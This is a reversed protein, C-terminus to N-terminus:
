SGVENSAALRASRRPAPWAYSGALLREIRLAGIVFRCIAEKVMAAVRGRVVRGTPQDDSNVFVVLGRRRGLSICQLMYGFRFPRLTEGTLLRAVQDAAHAGLPMAAACSMRTSRVGSGVSDDPPAAFDGAAFVNGIGYVRLESDVLIRGCADRPLTSAAPLPTAAFGSALVSLAAPVRSGDELVVADDELARVRVGERVHVGLAGLESRLVARTPDGLNEGVRLALLEVELKPFAEAIEASLEIGTLGGGVVVVRQGSALQPLAAALQQAHSSDALAASLPSSVPVNAKLQSGLALILASYPLWRRGSSDEIEVRCAHTDLDLVRARVFQVDRALVRDYPHEVSQGHVARQHLRIRDTLSDDPTVLIVRAQGRLRGQVRNAALVGAYGGGAVIVQDM